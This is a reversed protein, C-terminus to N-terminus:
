PILEIWDTMGNANRVSIVQHTPAVLDSYQPYIQVDTVAGTQQRHTLETSYLPTLAYHNLAYGLSLAHGFPYKPDNLLLQINEDTALISHEQIFDPGVGYKRQYYHLGEQHPGDIDVLLLNEGRRHRAWLEIFLPHQIVAKLYNAVYIKARASIYDLPPNTESIPEDKELSFQVNKLYDWGVPARVPEPNNMGTKRWNWYEPTPQNNEDLHVEAPWQWVIRQNRSSYPISVAPVQKYCKSFQHICELLQGESNKLEYPSLAGYKGQNLTLVPLATFQPFKPYITRGREIRSRGVRIQGPM